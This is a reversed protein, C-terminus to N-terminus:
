VTKVDELIREDLTDGHLVSVDGTAELVVAQAQDLSLCNAERMKAIVDSKSVRASTMAEECFAGDRYLFVPQNQMIDEATDSTKRIKSAIVQVLFLGVMAALSQWFAPWKDTTVANALVSGLAVTMVFDFNTMKSLSRLGVIRILLTVWVLGIFSLIIGRALLDLWTEEFFM